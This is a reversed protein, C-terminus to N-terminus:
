LPLDLPGEYLEIRAAVQQSAPDDSAIELLYATNPEELIRNSGYERPTSGRSQNSAPGIAIIDAGCKTGKNTLTFGVLLQAEPQTGLYKPNMNFLPDPTGGTYTPAKFIRGIVGLGTYGLTRSKLDVPKSGTLIISYVNNAEANSAITVLRSAEWQLGRKKNAEDYAQVTMARDGTFAKAPMETSSVYLYPGSGDSAGSFTIRLRAIPGSLSVAAEGAVLPLNTAKVLSRWVTSGIEQYQITVSASAPPSAFSIYAISSGIAGGPIPVVQPSSGSNLPFTMTM